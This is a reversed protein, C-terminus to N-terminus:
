LKISTSLLLYGINNNTTIQTLTNGDSFTTVFNFDNLKFLTLLSRGAVSFSLKDSLNYQVSLNCDAFSFNEQKTNYLRYEIDFLWDIKNETGEITFTNTLLSQQNIKEGNIHFSLYNWKLQNTIERILYNRPRLGVNFAPELIKNNARAKEGSVITPYYNELYKLNGGIDLRHYKKGFYIGKNAGADFTHTNKRNFVLNTYYFINSSISELIGQLFNQQRSYEYTLHFSKSRAVNNNFWGLSANDTVAYQNTKDGVNVIRNNYARVVTDYLSNLDYFRYGRNLRLVLNNQTEFNYTLRNAMKLFGRNGIEETHILTPTASLSYDLKKISGQLSIPMQATMIQRDQTDNGNTRNKFELNGKERNQSLGIGLKLFSKEFRLKINGHTSFYSKTFKETQFIDPTNNNKLRTQFDISNKEYYYDVDFDLAKDESFLHTIKLANALSLSSPDNITHVSFYTPSPFFVTDVTNRYRQHKVLLTSFVNELVTKPSIIINYNANASIFNGNETDELSTKKILTDAIFINTGIEREVNMDGYYVVMGVKSKKSERRMTLSNNSIFNKKVQYDEIFFPYLLNRLTNSGRKNIAIAVDKQNLDIEGTNNTNSTTFANLKDSFFFGKGKLNYKNKLGYGLDFEGKLVGKFQPKTKINIVPDRIRSFDITFRDKYNNIIQVDEMIEYNLNDLAVKNQNVFVEKDNILVKNIQKGQYSIGGDDSIIIGDTKNLMNRLTKDATLNMSHIDLNVTDTSRRTKVVVEDLPTVSIEMYIELSQVTDMKIPISKERYGIATINMIVMTIDKPIKLTFDGAKDSHGFTIPQAPTTDNVVINAFPVPKDEINKITGSIEKQQAYTVFGFLVILNFLKRM